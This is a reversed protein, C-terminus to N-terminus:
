MCLADVTIARLAGHSCRVHRATRKWWRWAVGCVGAPMVRTPHATVRGCQQHLGPTPSVADVGPRSPAHIYAGPLLMVRRELLARCGEADTRKICGGGGEAMKEM